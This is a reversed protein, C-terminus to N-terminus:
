LIARSLLARGFFYEERFLVLRAFQTLGVERVAALQSDRDCALREWGQDIMEHQAGRVPFSARVKIDDRVVPRTVVNSQRASPLGLRRTM